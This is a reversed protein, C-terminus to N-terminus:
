QLSLSLFVSLCTFTCHFSHSLFPFLSSFLLLVFLCFLFFFQVVFPRRRFLVIKLFFNKTHQAEKSFKQKGTAAGLSSDMVEYYISQMDLSIKTRKEICNCIYYLLSYIFFINITHKLNSGLVAHTKSLMMPVKQQVSIHNSKPYWWFENSNDTVVM